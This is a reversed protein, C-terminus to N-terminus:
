LMLKMARCHHKATQSYRWLLHRKQIGYTPYLLATKNVAESAAPERGILDLNVVLRAGTRRGLQAQDGQELRRRHGPEGDVDVQFALPDLDILAVGPAVANVDAHQCPQVGDM